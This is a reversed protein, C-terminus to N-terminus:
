AIRAEVDRRNAAAPLKVLYERYLDRAAAWKQQRRHAQALDFLLEPAGCDTYALEFESIAADLEARQYHALGKEWHARAAALEDARAPLAAAVLMAGIVIASVRAVM